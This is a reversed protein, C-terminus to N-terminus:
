DSGSEQTKPDPKQWGVRLKKSAECAEQDAAKPHKARPMKKTWGHRHLVRNVYREGPDRGLKDTFAAQIEKATIQKGAAEKFKNLIEEEEEYSLLWNHSTYKKRAFEDLGEEKYRRCIMTISSPHISLIEAITEAKKGEYRLMLIRLWKSIRKDKIAAEKAKIAEYETETIEYKKM